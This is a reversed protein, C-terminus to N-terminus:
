GGKASDIGLFDLDLDVGAARVFRHDDDDAQRIRRHPFGRLPHNGGDAGGSQIEIVSHFRHVERRRIQFLFPRREIQGDRQRHDRRTPCLWEIRLIATHHPLQPEIARHPRHLPHQRDRQFRLAPPPAAQEHRLRIRGFRRHDVADLHKGDPIEFLRPVKEVAVDDDRGEMEVPLREEIGVARIFHIEVLHFSLILHLPREFHRGCSIM